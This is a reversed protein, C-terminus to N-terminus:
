DRFYPKELYRRAETHTNEYEKMNLVKEYQEIALSRKRQADYIMGITLNAMSMFGSAGDKDLKRSHEDCTYYNQLAKDFEGAMFHFKGIYYYAERGDHLDYGEQGSTFRDRVESFMKLAEAWYGLNVYCRGLYRHFLPNRPYMQHLSQAYGLAVNYQKEYSYNAQLLFYRAETRAYKGYLSAKELEELGKKKDGSPLFIMLPKVIPYQKPVVAAYYDYIGVGLLIDYNKPDIEYAKRVIPLAVIGDNAAGLWQGRNARLRGRFGIAGGKFFLATVDNKNKKLRKDCLDIVAELMDKFYDDHSEDDFNSLIRWWETMAQFFYGAPHDPYVKVVDSFERDAQAFEINYIHDIGRQIRQENLDDLKWQALLPAACVALFLIVLWCRYSLIHVDMM